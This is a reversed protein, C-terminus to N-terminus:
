QQRETSIIEFGINHSSLPELVKVDPIASNEGTGFIISLILRALLELHSLLHTEPGLSSSLYLLINPELGRWKDFRKLIM